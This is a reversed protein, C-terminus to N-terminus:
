RSLAPYRALLYLSTGLKFRERWGFQVEDQTTLLTDYAVLVTRLRRRTDAPAYMRLIPECTVAKYVHRDITSHSPNTDYIWVDLTLLLKSIRRRNPTKWLCCLWQAISSWIYHTPKLHYRARVSDSASPFNVVAIYVPVWLLASATSIDDHDDTGM